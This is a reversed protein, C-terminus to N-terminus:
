IDELSVKKSPVLWFSLEWSQKNYKIKLRKAKEGRIDLEILFVKDEDKEKIVAKKVRALLHPAVKLKVTGKAKLINWAPEYTRLPRNM